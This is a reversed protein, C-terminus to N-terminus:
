GKTKLVNMDELSLKEKKFKNYWHCSSCPNETKSEYSIDTLMHKAEILRKSNLSDMLGEKFVNIRFNKNTHCCGLLNGNWNIQPEEFLQYCPM